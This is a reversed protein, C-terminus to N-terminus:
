APGPAVVGFLWPGLSSETSDAVYIVSRGAHSQMAYYSSTNGAAYTVVINTPVAAGSITDGGAPIGAGALDSSYNTNIATETMGTVQELTQSSAPKYSAVGPGASTATTSVSLKYLIDAGRHVPM